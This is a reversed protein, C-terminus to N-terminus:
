SLEVSMSSLCLNLSLFCKVNEVDASTKHEKQAAVSNLSCYKCSICGINPYENLNRRLVWSSLHQQISSVCTNM